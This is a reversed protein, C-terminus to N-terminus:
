EAPGLTIKYELADPERRVPDARVSRLLRAMAPRSTAAGGRQRHPRVRRNRRDTEAQALLTQHREHALAVYIHPSLM